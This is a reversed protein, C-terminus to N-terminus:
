LESKNIDCLNHYLVDDYQENSNVTSLYCHFLADHNFYQSLLVIYYYSSTWKKEIKTMSLDQLPSNLLSFGHLFYNFFNYLIWREIIIFPLLM